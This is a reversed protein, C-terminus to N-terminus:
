LLPSRIYRLYRLHQSLACRACGCKKLEPAAAALLLERHEEQCSFNESLKRVAEQCSRAASTRQGRGSLLLERVAGQLQLELRTHLPPLHEHGLVVLLLGGGHLLLVLSLYLLPRSTMQLMVMGVVVGPFFVNFFVLNFRGFFAENILIYVYIYIFFFFQVVM